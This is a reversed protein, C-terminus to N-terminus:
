QFPRLIFVWVKTVMSMAFAKEPCLKIPYAAEPMFHHLLPTLATRLTNWLPLGWGPFYNTVTNKM